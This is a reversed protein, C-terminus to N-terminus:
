CRIASLEYFTASGTESGQPVTVTTFPSSGFTLVVTDGGPGAPASMQVTASSSTGGIVTAPNLTLGTVYAPMKLKSVFGTNQSNFSPYTSQYAGATVPFDSAATYGAVVPNDSSDLALAFLRNAGETGGLYTGYELSSSDASIKAVFGSQSIPLSSQIADSTVPFNSSETYGAVVANGATDLALGQLLTAGNGGLFTSSLMTTGDASLRFVFGAQATDGAPFTSQFADASTPFDTSGTQGCVVENGASDLALGNCADGRNQGSGGLYTSFVLSSVTPNLKAVFGTEHGEDVTQFAGPSVPFNPSSTSGAVVVNGSGDLAVSNCSDLKNTHTTDGFYTSFILTKADPSFKAVFGTEQTNITFTPFLVGAAM